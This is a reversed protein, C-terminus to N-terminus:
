MLVLMGVGEVVELEALIVVEVVLRTEIVMRRCSGFLYLSISVFDILPM